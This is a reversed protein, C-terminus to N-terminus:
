LARSLAEISYLNRLLQFGHTGNQALVENYGSTLSVPLALYAVRTIRAM